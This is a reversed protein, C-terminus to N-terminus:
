LNFAQRFRRLFQYIRHWTNDNTSCFFPIGFVKLYDHLFQTRINTQNSFLQYMEQYHKKYKKYRTSKAITLNIFSEVNALNIIRSRLMIFFTNTFIFGAISIFCLFLTTKDSIRLIKKM